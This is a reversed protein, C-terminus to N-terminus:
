VCGLSAFIVKYRKESKLEDRRFARVLQPDFTGVRDRPIDLRIRGADTLVTKQGYGNRCNPRGTPRQRATWITTWSPM